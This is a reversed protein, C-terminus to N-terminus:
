LEPSKVETKKRGGGSRRAGGSVVDNGQRLERLGRAITNRDLGTIRHLLTIGGRGYQQALFGVILRRTREDAGAVLRNICRHEQATPGKSHRSCDPCKCRHAVRDKADTGM